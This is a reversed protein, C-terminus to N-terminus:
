AWDTDTAARAQAAPAFEWWEALAAALSERPTGAALSGGWEAQESATADRGLADNHLRSIFVADDLGATRAQFAPSDALTRAIDAPASGGELIAQLNLVEAETGARGFGLRALGTALVLEPDAAAGAVPQVPAAPAPVSVAPAGVPVGDAPTWATLYTNDMVGNGLGPGKPEATRGIGWAYDLVAGAPLAEGFSVVLSDADLIAASNAEIRQGGPLEASWGLGEAAGASLPQFGTAGDHVVDVQVRTPDLPTAAVVRPGDSAINGAAAAVPSGPRAYEAWEEAVGRAIRAAILQADAASIHGGGYEATAPDRDTNDLSADIDPARAAIAGDFAPDAALAEMAGRLTQHGTDSGPSYPHAAVFLYPVDRGLAGRVLGADARVASSWESASLNPDRSDYESHMWVVLSAGGMGDAKYDAIRDLFGEGRGAPTWGGKGDPRMWDGLFATGPYATDGGAEDRDYVLRVKDEVGDFGLLGEVQKVLTGSAAYGDLEAFYAANSQGRLIIDLQL